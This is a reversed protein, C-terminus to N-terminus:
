QNESLIKECYEKLPKIDEKVTVWVKSFNITGYGHGIRDRMGAIKTWPVGQYKTTINKSLKKVLEGIQFINFCVIEILDDNKLFTEKKVNLTKTEIRECHAIISHLVGNDKNDVM